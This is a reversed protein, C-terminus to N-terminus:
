FVCKSIYFAGERPSEVLHQLLCDNTSLMWYIKAIVVRMIIWCPAFGPFWKELQSLMTTCSYGQKSHKCKRVKTWFVIYSCICVHKPMFLTNTISVWAWSRCDGKGQELKKKRYFKYSELMNVVHITKRGWALIYTEYTSLHISWECIYGLVSGPM